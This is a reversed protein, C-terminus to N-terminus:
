NESEDVLTVFSIDECNLISIIDGEKDKITFIDKIRIADLLMMYHRELIRVRKELGNRLTINLLIM